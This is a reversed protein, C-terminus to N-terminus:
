ETIGEPRPGSVKSRHAWHQRALARNAISVFAEVTGYIAQPAAVGGRVTFVSGDAVVAQDGAHRTLLGQLALSEARSSIQSRLTDVERDISRAEPRAPRTLM